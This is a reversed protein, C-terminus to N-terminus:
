WKENRRWLENRRWIDSVMTWVLHAGKYISRIVAQGHYVGTVKKNEHWRM